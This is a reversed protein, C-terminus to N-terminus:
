GFLLSGVSGSASAGPIPRSSTQVFSALEAVFKATWHVPTGIVDGAGVALISFLQGATVTVSNTLDSCSREVGAGGTITCTVPTGGPAGNIRITFTYTAGAPGVDSTTRVYFQSITGNVPIAQQM